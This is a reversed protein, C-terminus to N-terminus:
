TESLRNSVTQQSKGIVTAIVKQTAGQEKMHKITGDEGLLSILNRRLPSVMNDRMQEYETYVFDPYHRPFQDIFVPGSCIQQFMPSLSMKYAKAVSQGKVTKDKQVKIRLFCADVIGGPLSLQTPATFGISSTDTRAVTMWERFQVVDERWWRARPIHQGVDDMGLVPVRQEHKSRNIQVYVLGEIPNFFLHDLASLWADINKLKYIHGLVEYMVHLLYSTKGDAFEGYVFFTVLGHKEHAEIIRESLSLM